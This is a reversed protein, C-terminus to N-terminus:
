STTVNVASNRERYGAYSRLNPSGAAQSYVWFKLNNLGIVYQARAVQLRQLQNLKEYEKRRAGDALIRHFKVPLVPEDAGISMVTVTREYDILYTIVSSPTPVLAIQRYHPSTTGPMIRSLVTTSARLRVEGVTVASTYLKTVSVIDTASTTVQTLGNLSQVETFPIGGTRFGEVYIQTTGIDGASTSIFNLQGAATPQTEVWSQGMSVYYEPTGPDTGPNPFRARYQSLSMLVLQRRNTTDRISKINEVTNPLGYEAQSAVSALSIQDNLLWDMGPESMVEQQTENVFATIRTVVDTAPAAAYGCRRYVDALIQTLTM